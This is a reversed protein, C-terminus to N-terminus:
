FLRYINIFSEGSEKLPFTKEVQYERDSERKWHGSIADERQIKIEKNTVSDTQKM